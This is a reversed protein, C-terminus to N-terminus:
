FGFGEGVYEDGYDAGTDEAEGVGELAGSPEEAEDGEEGDSEEGVVTHHKEDVGSLFEFVM